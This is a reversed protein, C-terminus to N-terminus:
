FRWCVLKSGKTRPDPNNLAYFIAYRATFDQPRPKNNIRNTIWSPAKINNWIAPCAFLPHNCKGQGNMARTNNEIIYEQITKNKLMIKKTSAVALSLYIREQNNKPHFNYMPKTKTGFTIPVNTIAMEKLSSLSGDPIFPNVNITHAVGIRSRNNNIVASSENLEFFWLSRTRFKDM